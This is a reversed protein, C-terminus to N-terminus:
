AAQGEGSIDAKKGNNAEISKEEEFATLSDPGRLFWLPDEDEMLYQEHYMVHLSDVPGLVKKKKFTEECNKM